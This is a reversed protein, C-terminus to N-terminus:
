ASSQFMAELLVSCTLHFYHVLIVCIDCYLKLNYQQCIYDHIHVMLDGLIRVGTELVDEYHSATETQRAIRVSPAGYCITCMLAAVVAATYFILKM